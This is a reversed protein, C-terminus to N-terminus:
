LTDRISELMFNGSDTTLSNINLTVNYAEPIIAEVNRKTAPHVIEVRRRVGLHEIMINSISCYLMFRVGPVLARYICPPFVDTKNRRYSSTQFCLLWLLDFNRQISDESITNLLPFSFNIPDTGPQPDFFQSKEIYIGPEVLPGAIPMGSGYSAVLNQGEQIMSTFITSNGPYQQTWNANKSAMVNTFFPMKYKFGTAKLFYLGIYPKLNKSALLDEPNASKDKENFLFDIFGQASGEDIDKVLKSLVSQLGGAGKVVANWSEISTDLLYRLEALLPSKDIRYEDLLIYPHEIIENKPSVTWDYDKVIDIIQTRKKIETPDEAAVQKEKPSNPTKNNKQSYKAGQNNGRGRRGRSRAATPPPSAETATPPPTPTPAPVPEQTPLEDAKGPVAVKIQLKPDEQLTFLTM